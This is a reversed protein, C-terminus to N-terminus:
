ASDGLEQWNATAYPPAWRTLQNLKSKHYHNTSTQPQADHAHCSAPSSCRAFGSRSSGRGRVFKFNAMQVFEIRAVTCNEVASTLFRFSCNGLIRTWRGRLSGCPTTVLPRAEHNATWPDSPGTAIWTFQGAACRSSWCTGVLTCCSQVTHPQM